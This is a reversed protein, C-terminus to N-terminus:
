GLCTLLADTWACLPLFIGNTAGPRNETSCLSKLCSWTTSSPTSLALKWLISPTSTKTMLKRVLNFDSIITWAEPVSGAIANLEALFAPKDAHRTPAYVNTLAFKTGDALLSLHTTLSFLRDEVQGLAYVSSDWATLIGVSAGISPRAAQSLLCAPLFSKLKVCSPSAIKNGPHRCCLPTALDTRCAGRRMQVVARVGSCELFPFLPNSNVHPVQLCGSSCVLLPVRCLCLM